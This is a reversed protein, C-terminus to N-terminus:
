APTFFCPEAIFGPEQSTVVGFNGQLPGTTALVRDDEPMLPWAPEIVWLQIPQFILVKFDAIVAARIIRLMALLLVSLVKMQLGM